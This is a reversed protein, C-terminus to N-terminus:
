LCFCLYPDTGVSMRIREVLGQDPPSEIRMLRFPRSFGYGNLAVSRSDTYCFIEQRWLVEKILFYIKALTIMHFLM